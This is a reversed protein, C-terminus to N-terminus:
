RSAYPRGVGKTEELRKDVVRTILYAGILSVGVGEMFVFAGSMVPTLREGWGTSAQLDAMLSGNAFLFVIIFVMFLATGIAGAYIGQAVGSVYNQHTEPQEVRLQKIAYYLVGLHLAGNIIRLQYNDAYGTAYSILFISLLGAFFILGYRIAIHKM